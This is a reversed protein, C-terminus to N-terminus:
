RRYELRNLPSRVLKPSSFSAISIIQPSYCTRISQSFISLDHGKNRGGEGWGWSKGTAQASFQPLSLLYFYFFSSFSLCSLPSCHAAFLTNKM